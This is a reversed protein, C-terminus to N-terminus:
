EDMRCFPYELRVRIPCAMRAPLGRTDHHIRRLEHTRGMPLRISSVRYEISSIEGAPLQRASRHERSNRNWLKFKTCVLMPQRDQCDPLNQQRPHRDYTPWLDHLDHHDHHDHRDHVAACLAANTYTYTILHIGAGAIAPYFIGNTVGAGSYTGGLPIGGKLKFPQANTTTISDFCRTFTVVPSSPVNMTITNSTAPNGTPCDINSTLFCLVQDGSAPNYTYIPSNTGVSNGNVKWQYSPASGGNTPTATFTVPLGACQPNDSAAITVDVITNSLIVMYLPNSMAPNNSTCVTNSSTLVCSVIDGNLPIYAYVPSDPGAGTGNVKWQYSPLSGGNAPTATFTVPTGTCVNNASASISVKVSDGPTVTVPFDVTNGWCSGIKPAIHYTVIGPTALSNILVQNIVLGSDASFGSINGSTLTTTWHFTTGSINSILFINTSKGLM